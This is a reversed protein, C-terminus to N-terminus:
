SVNEANPFIKDQLTLHPQKTWNQQIPPMNLCVWHLFRFPCRYGLSSHHRQSASSVLPDPLAWTIDPETMLHALRFCLGQKSQGKATVQKWTRHCLLWYTSLSRLRTERWMDLHHTILIARLAVCKHVKLGLISCISGDLLHVAHQEVVAFHSHWLWCCCRDCSGHHM